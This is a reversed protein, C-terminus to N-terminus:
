YSEATAEFTSRAVKDLLDSGPVQCYWHAPKIADRIHEYPPVSYTYYENVLTLEDRKKKTLVVLELSIQMDGLVTHMTTRDTQKEIM